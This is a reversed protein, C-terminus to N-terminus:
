KEKAQICVGNREYSLLSIASIKNKKLKFVFGKGGMSSCLFQLYKIKRQKFVFGMGTM